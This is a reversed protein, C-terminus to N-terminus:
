SKKKGKKDLVQNWDEGYQIKLDQIVDAAAAMSTVSNIAQLAKQGDTAYSRKGQM